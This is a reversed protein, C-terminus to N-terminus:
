GGVPYWRGLAPLLLSRPVLRGGLASIVNHAGPVVSRKGAELGEVAAHAVDAPDDVLFSPLEDFSRMGAEADFETATLGPCLVTVTVGTEALDTHLAETFSHVFAKSAAYTAQYPLPQFAAISAVNLIAGRGRDVMSSAYTGCFGVVAEVNLRVMGEEGDPDLDQFRGTSGYGANNVLTEVTLGRREIEAALEARGEHDAVSAAVVEVRVGHADSLEDALDHLREERRAVLTVGHGRRALERALDSGIGSSAGTVLCTSDPAPPPLPL